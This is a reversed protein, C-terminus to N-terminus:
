PHLAGPPPHTLSDIVRLADRLSAVDHTRIFDVGQIAAWIETALTGAGRSEVPRPRGEADALLAGIFSKRSTSVLLPLGLARLRTLSRLVALSIDPTPGLFMGMGPDLILRHRAIGAAVLAAVRREFFQAVHEVITRADAHARRDARPAAALTRRAHMLVIRADAARVAEVANPDSLATVDNIMGVGHALMQRMVEPKHTDISLRAALGDRALERVVPTLRDIELTESVSEADPHTSEAGLDIWDAGESLLRRAHAVADAPALYRGGDSFSDRTVNVIGLIQVARGVGARLQM